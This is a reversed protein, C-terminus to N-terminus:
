RGSKTFSQYWIRAARNVTDVADWGKRPPDPLRNGGHDDRKSDNNSDATAPARRDLAHLNPVKNILM